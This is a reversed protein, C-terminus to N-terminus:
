LIDSVDTLDLLGRMDLLGPYDSKCSFFFTSCLFWLLSRPLSKRPGRYPKHLLSNYYILAHVKNGLELFGALNGRYISFVFSECDDVRIGVKWGNVTVVSSATFM